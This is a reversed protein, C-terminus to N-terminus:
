DFSLNGIGSFYIQKWSIMKLQNRFFDREGNLSEPEPPKVTVNDAAHSFKLFLNGHFCSM